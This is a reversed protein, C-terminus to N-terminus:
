RTLLDPNDHINGIVEVELWDIADQTTKIIGGYKEAIKFGGDEFSVVYLRDTRPKIIDGEFIKIGNKDTLGTYEGVIGSLVSCHRNLIKLIQTQCEIEGYEDITNDNALYGYVWEGYIEKGGVVIKDAGRLTQTPSDPMFGRYLHERM